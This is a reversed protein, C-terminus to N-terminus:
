AVHDLGHDVEVRRQWGEQDHDLARGLQGVM